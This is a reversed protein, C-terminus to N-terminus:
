GCFIWPCPRVAGYTRRSESFLRFSASQTQPVLFGFFHCSISLLHHSAALADIAIFSHFSADFPSSHFCIFSHHDIFIILVAAITAHRYYFNIWARGNEGNIYTSSHTLWGCDHSHVYIDTDHARRFAPKRTDVASNFSPGIVHTRLQAVAVRWRWGCVRWPFRLM